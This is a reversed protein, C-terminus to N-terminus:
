LLVYFWSVDRFYYAPGSAGDRRIAEFVGMIIEDVREYSKGMTESMSRQYPRMVFGAPPPPLAPAAGPEPKVAPAKACGAKWLGGM